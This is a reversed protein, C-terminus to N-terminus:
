ENYKEMLIKKFIMEYRKAIDISDHYTEVFKRSNYGWEEIKDKNNIIYEIQSCIQEIDHKLNIVPNVNEIGLEINGEPEAGGMVIKGKAMSFLGNMAISYSNADDLIVNTRSVLDMYENFPLGGACHFEAIKSHKKEMRSFAEKILATGKAEPRTPVGHFFVIKDKVKNPVYEFDEWNIPIRVTPLITKYNRFPQAYEYWIPIYGDVSNLLEDEWARLEKNEFLSVTGKNKAGEIIGDVYYKYKEKSNHWYDVMIAMDGAGCLFSAKNHKIMYRYLPANWRPHRSIVSSDVFFVVDYGCLKDRHLWLNTVEFPTTLLNRKKFLHADYRFDAPYDKFGNGDSVFFVDHGINKLGHYLCTFLGSFEGFLLIKM